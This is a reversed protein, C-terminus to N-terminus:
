PPTMSQRYAEYSPMRGIMMDDNEEDRADYEYAHGSSETEEWNGGQSSLLGGLSVKSPAAVTTVPVPTRATWAPRSPASM